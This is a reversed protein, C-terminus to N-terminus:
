KLAKPRFIVGASLLLPAVVLGTINFWLQTNQLQDAEDLYPQAEEYLERQM